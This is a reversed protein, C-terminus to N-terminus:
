VPSSLVLGPGSIIFFMCLEASCSIEAAGQFQFASSYLSNMSEFGKHQIKISIFTLIGVNILLSAQTTELERLM